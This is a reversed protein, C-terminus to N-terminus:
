VKRGNEQLWPILTNFLDDIISYKEEDNIVERKPVTDKAHKIGKEIDRFDFAEIIQNAISQYEMFKFAKSAQGFNSANYFFTAM